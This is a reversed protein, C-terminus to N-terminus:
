PALGASQMGTVPSHDASQRYAANGDYPDRSAYLYFTQVGEESVMGYQQVALYCIRVSDRAAIVQKELEQTKITTAAIEQYMRTIDKSIQSREYLKTAVSFFMVITLLSLFICASKRTVTLSKHKRAPPEKGAYFSARQAADGDPVYVSSRVNMRIGPMGQTGAVAYQTNGRGQPM